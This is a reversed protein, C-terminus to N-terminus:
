IRKCLKMRNPDVCIAHGSCEKRNNESDDIFLFVEKKTDYISRLYKIYNKKDEAPNETGLAELEWTVWPPIIDDLMPELYETYSRATLFIVVGEYSTLVRLVNENINYLKFKYQLWGLLNALRVNKFLRWTIDMLDTMKGNILTNDIDCIIM